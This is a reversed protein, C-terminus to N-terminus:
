VTSKGVRIHAVTPDLLAESTASFPFGALIGVGLQAVTPLGSAPAASMATIVVVGSAGGPGVGLLISLRGLGWSMLLGGGPWEM